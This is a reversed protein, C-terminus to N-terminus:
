PLTTAPSPLPAMSHGQHLDNADPMIVSARVRNHVNTELSSPILVGEGAVSNPSPARPTVLTDQLCEFYNRSPNTVAHLYSSRIEQHHSAPHHKTFYDAKNLAGRRWYVIFQGQRVRDRVWYFRM